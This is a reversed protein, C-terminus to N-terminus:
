CPRPELVPGSRPQTLRTDFSPVHEQSTRALSGSSVQGAGAVPWLSIAGRNRKRAPRLVDREPSDWGVTPRGSMGFIAYIETM